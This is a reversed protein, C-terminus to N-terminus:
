LVIPYEMLDLKEIFRYDKQNKSIVKTNAAIATAAVLADAILLGHSLHYTKLLDAATDSIHENLSIIDFRQLFHDLSKLEKKNRCGIILEM